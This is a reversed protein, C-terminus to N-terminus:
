YTVTKANRAWGELPRAWKSSIMIGRCDGPAHKIDEGHGGYHRACGVGARCDRLAYVRRITGPPGTHGSVARRPEGGDPM